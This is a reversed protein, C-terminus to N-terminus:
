EFRVRLEYTRAEELPRYPSVEFHYTKGGEINIKVSDTVNLAYGNPNNEVEFLLRGSESHSVIMQKAGEPAVVALHDRDKGVISGAVCSEFSTANDRDDNEEVEAACSGSRPTISPGNTDDKNGKTGSGDSTASASEKAPAPTGGLASEKPGQVPGELETDAAGACGVLSFLLVGIVCRM